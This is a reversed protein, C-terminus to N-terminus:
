KKNEGKKTLTRAYRRVAMRIEDVMQEKDRDMPERVMLEVDEGLTVRKWSEGTSSKLSFRKETEPLSSYIQAASTKIEQRPESVGLENRTTQINRIYELASSSASRKQLPEGDLLASSQFIPRFEDQSNLAQFMDEPSMSDLLQKIQQLPLHLDKLRQILALYDLHEQSYRSFKGRTDPGPLLGEQIYFRLTRMPLGSLKELDELTFEKAM